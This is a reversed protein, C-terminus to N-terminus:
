VLDEVKKTKVINKSIDKIYHKNRILRGQKM